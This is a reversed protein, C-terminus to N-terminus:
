SRESPKTRDSAACTGGEIASMFDHVDWIFSNCTEMEDPPEMIKDVGERIALAMGERQHIEMHCHSLWYGPNDSRFQVVLYGGAAVVFTDKRVTSKDLSFITNSSRFRPKPCRIDDLTELDDGDETCTLDRSSGTLFGDESSYGGYGYKLVHVSHGHIHFPHQNNREEGVASIVLRVTINHPIDLVTTCDCGGPIYAASQISMVSLIQMTRTM